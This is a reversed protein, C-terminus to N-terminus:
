SNSVYIQSIRLNSNGSADSSSGNINIVIYIYYWGTISSVNVVCTGSPNNVSAALNRTNSNNSIGLYAYNSWILSNEAIVFKLYKYNTFDFTSNTRAACGYNSKHYTKLNITGDVSFSNRGNPNDIMSMGTSSLGNWSGNNFLYFPSSFYGECTGTIGM